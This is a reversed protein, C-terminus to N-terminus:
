INCHRWLSRSPTMRTLITWEVTHEPASLFFWWLRHGTSEGWLPGTVLFINGNSSTMMVYRARNLLCTKHTNQHFPDDHNSVHHMIVDHFPFIKWTVPGKHPSDVPWLHIGRVFVLSASIQHRVPSNGACLALLTSIDGNSSTMTHVRYLRCLLQKMDHHKEHESPNVCLFYIYISQQCDMIKQYVFNIFCEIKIVMHSM